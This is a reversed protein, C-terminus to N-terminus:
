AERRAHLDLTDVLDSEDTSTQLV